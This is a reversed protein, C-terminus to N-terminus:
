QQSTSQKLKNLRENAKDFFSEAEKAKKASAFKDILSYYADITQKYRIEKKEDVSNEALFYHSKILTIMVEERSKTSPYDKLINKLSAIAAKYDSIQFFLMAHSIDKKELKARLEDILRNCDEVRESTPYRNVFIQMEDIAKFTNTQDLNFQPSGLYYCYAAMYAAEEASESSPYLKSFQEFHYSASALDNLYYNCYSYIFYLEEAKQTGRTVSVLEELLPYAKSYEKKNYLKIATDYKLETNSSKLVKQYSSCASFGLMASLFFYFTFRHIIKSVPQLTVKKHWM